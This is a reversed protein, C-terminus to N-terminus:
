RAIDPTQRAPLVYAALTVSLIVWFELSLDNKWYPVDVLGHVVVAILALFVGLHIFRWGDETRRYGRWSWVFGAVLIWLFAALGLLGTESWFNLIINHPYTFRDINTPNWYPGIVTAFGSLGAGFIPHDRLMQLAVSWLHFRGVLTNSGNSFDLELLIRHRVTSSGLMLIVFAAVAAGLLIWRRRHSLALGVAVVALALYGGRSFSLLVCLTALAAFGAAAVREASNRWHLAVAGSMAILPVLYLAVANATNYIVVPPTNVVDYTHHRLANLVVASNAVGAVAGGLALGGVLLLARQPTTAVNMVVLGFAIPEVLYARFLGLAARHDPAVAISIVGAILFLITPIWVASRWKPVVGLRYSEVVFAAITVLIASELLTTPLPGVHWRIVYAPALACTLTACAQTVRYKQM